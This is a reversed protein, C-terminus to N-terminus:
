LNSTPAYKSGLQVEVFFYNVTLLRENNDCYLKM